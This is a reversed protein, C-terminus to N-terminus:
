LMPFSAIRRGHDICTRVFNFDIAVGGAQRADLNLQRAKEHDAGGAPELKFTCISRLDDLRLERGLAHAFQVQDEAFSQQDARALHVNEEVPSIWPADRLRWHR